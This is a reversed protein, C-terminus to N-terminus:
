SYFVYISFLLAFIIIIHIYNKNIRLKDSLRVSKSKYQNKYADLSALYSIEEKGLMVNIKNHIFHTWRIFSERCDLYPTVPYKDLLQAFRDGIEVDPIFLPLNTIFDYYKRKTIVNPHIPYSHAVSHLFFWYHPGWVESDFVM